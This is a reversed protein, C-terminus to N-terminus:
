HHPIKVLIQPKYKDTNIFGKLQLLVLKSASAPGIAASGWCPGPVTKMGPWVWINGWGLQGGVATGQRPHQPTGRWLSGKTGYRGSESNKQGGERFKDGYGVYQCVESAAHEEWAEKGSGRARGTWTGM